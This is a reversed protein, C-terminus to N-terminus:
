NREPVKFEGKFSPLMSKMLMFNNRKLLKDMHFFKAGMKVSRIIYEGCNINEDDPLPTLVLM